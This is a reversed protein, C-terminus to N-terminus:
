CCCRIVFMEKRNLRFSYHFTNIVFQQQRWNFLQYQLVEISRIKKNSEGVSGPTSPGRAGGVAGSAGAAQAALNFGKM